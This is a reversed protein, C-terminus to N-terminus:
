CSASRDRPAKSVKRDLKVPSAKRAASARSVVSAKRVSRVVRAASAPVPSGNGVPAQVTVRIIRARWSRAGMSRLSTSSRTGSAKTTPAACRRRALRMAVPSRLAYGTRAARYRRLTRSRRISRATTCVVEAQYTVSEQRWIKAVPLTGPPGSPGQAGAPGPPGKMKVDNWLHAVLKTLIDMTFQHQAAIRQGILEDIEAMTPPRTDLKREPREPERKPRLREWRELADEDDPPVGLQAYISERRDFM